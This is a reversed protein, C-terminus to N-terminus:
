QRKKKYNRLNTVEFTVIQRKKNHGAQFDSLARHYELSFHYREHAQSLGFEGNKRDFISRKVKM